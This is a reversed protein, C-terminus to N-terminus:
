GNHRPIDDSYFACLGFGFAFGSRPVHGGAVLLAEIGGAPKLLFFIIREKASMGKM